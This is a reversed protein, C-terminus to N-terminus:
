VRGPMMWGKIAGLVTEVSCYLVACQIRCRKAGTFLSLAREASQFVVVHHSDDDCSYVYVVCINSRHYDTKTCCHVVMPHIPCIFSHPPCTSFLYLITPYPRDISPPRFTSPCFPPHIPSPHFPQIISSLDSSTTCLTPPAPRGFCSLSPSM